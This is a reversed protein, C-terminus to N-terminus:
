PDKEGSNDDQQHVLNALQNARQDFGILIRVYVGLEGIAALGHITFDQYAPVLPIFLDYSAMLGWVLFAIISTQMRGARWRQRLSVLSFLSSVLLVLALHPPPLPWGPATVMATEWSGPILLVVASWAIGLMTLWGELGNAWGLVKLASVQLRFSAPQNM